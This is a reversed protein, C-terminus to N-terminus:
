EVAQGMAEESPTAEKFPGENEPVPALQSPKPPHPWRHLKSSPQPRPRHPSLQGTGPPLCSRDLLSLIDHHLRELAVDKPLRGTHNQLNPNNVAAAWHLASKGRKDIAHIDAHNAVLEEVMNEVGLRTALILPTTGDDASADLDTQRQRLLIDAGATLLRRAADARSYRAALHLPSEGFNEMQKDTWSSEVKLGSSCALSM